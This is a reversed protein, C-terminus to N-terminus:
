GRIRYVHAVKNAGGGAFYKGDNSFAVSYIGGTASTVDSEWLKKKTAIDWISLEGYNTGFGLFRGDPSYSISQIDSTAQYFVVPSTWIDVPYIRVTNDGGATALYKGDPSFQVAYVYGTHDNLIKQQQGTALNWVIVSKDEGGSALYRGDPSFDITKIIDTHGRLQRETGSLNTMDWIAIINGGGGTIRWAGALYRSDKSFALAKYTRSNDREAVLPTDNSKNWISIGFTGASAILQGNPSSALTHQYTGVSKLSKFLTGNQLDWFKVLLDDGGATLLQSSGNLFGVKSIITNHGGASIPALQYLSTVELKTKFRYVASWTSVQQSTKARVRWFYTRYPQLDQAIHNNSSVAILGANALSGESSSIQVEYGIGSGVNSWQLGVPISLTEEGNAPYSLTPANLVIPQPNPNPNPNPNPSSTNTDCAMLGTLMIIICYIATKM